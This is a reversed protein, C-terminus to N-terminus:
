PVDLHGQNLQALEWALNGHLRNREVPELIDAAQISDALQDLVKRRGERYLEAPVHAYEKRVGHAYWRYQHERAWLISLDAFIIWYQPSGLRYKTLDHGKTVMILDTILPVDYQQHSLRLKAEIASREENDSALPDYVVDHFMTAVVLPKSDNFTIFNRVWAANLANLMLALHGLTHYHRHPATMEDLIFDQVPEPLGVKTMRERFFKHM